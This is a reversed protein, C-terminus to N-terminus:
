FFDGSSRLLFRWKQSSSESFIERVRFFSDGDREREGIKAGQQSALCFESHGCKTGTSVLQPNDLVSFKYRVRVEDEVHDGRNLSWWIVRGATSEQIRYSCSVAQLPIILNIRVSIQYSCSNFKILLTNMLLVSAAVGRVKTAAALLTMGEICYTLLILSVKHCRCM